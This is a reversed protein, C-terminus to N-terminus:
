KSAQSQNGSGHIIGKLKPLIPEAKLQIFESLLQLGKSIKTVTWLLAFTICAIFIILYEIIKGMTLKGRIGM